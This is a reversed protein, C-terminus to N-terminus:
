AEILYSGGNGSMMSDVDLLGNEIPEGYCEPCTKGHRQRLSEASGPKPIMLACGIQQGSKSSFRDCKGNSHDSAQLLTLCSQSANFCGEDLYHHEAHVHDTSIASSTPFKGHM